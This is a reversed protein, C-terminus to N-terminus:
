ELRLQGVTCLPRGSSSGLSSTGSGSLRRCQRRCRHRRRCLRRTRCGCVYRFPAVVTGRGGNHVGATSHPWQLLLLLGRDERSGQAGEVPLKVVRRERAVGCQHAPQDGVTGHHVCRDAAAVVVAVYEDSKQVLYCAPGVQRSAHPHQGFNHAALGVEICPTRQTGRRQCPSALVFVHGSSPHQQLETGVVPGDIVPAAVREPAGHHHIDLETARLSVCFRLLRRSAQDRQQCLSSSIQISPTVLRWQKLCQPLGVAWGHCCEDCM